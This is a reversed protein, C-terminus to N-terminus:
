CLQKFALESDFDLCELSPELAFRGRWGYNSIELPAIRPTTPRHSTQPQARFGDM